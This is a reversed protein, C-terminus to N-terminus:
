AMEVKYRQIEIALSRQISEVSSVLKSRNGEALLGEVGHRRGRRIRVGTGAQTHMAYGVGAAAPELEPCLLAVGSMAAGPKRRMAEIM